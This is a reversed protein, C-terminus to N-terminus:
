EGGGETATPPPAATDTKGWPDPISIGDQANFIKLLRALNNLHMQRGKHTMDDWSVDEYPDLEPFEKRVADALAHRAKRIAEQRRVEAAAHLHALALREHSEPSTHWDLADSEHVVGASELFAAAAEGARSPDVYAEGATGIKVFVQKGVRRNEAASISLPVGDKDIHKFSM